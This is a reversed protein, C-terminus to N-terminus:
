RFRRLVRALKGLWVLPLAFKNTKDSGDLLTLNKTRSILVIIISFALVSSLLIIEWLDMPGEHNEKIVTYYIGLIIIVLLTLYTAIVM